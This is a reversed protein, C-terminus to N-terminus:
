LQNNLGSLVTSFRRMTFRPQMRIKEQPQNLLLRTRHILLWTLSIGNAFNVFAAQNMRYSDPRRFTFPRKPTPSQNM